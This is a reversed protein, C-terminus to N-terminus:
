RGHDKLTRELTEFGRVVEEIVAEEVVGEQWAVTITLGKGKVSACNVSFAPGVPQAGQSFTVARVDWVSGPTYGFDIPGLNSVEFTAERAKGFKSRYFNIPDSVYSLLGVLNDRPCKELEAQQQTQVHRAVSWIDEAHQALYNPTKERFAQLIKGPFNTTFASTQNCMEDKSTETARGRLTYPTISRFANASPLADSLSCVVSSTLLSTLSTSKKKTLVLLTAVTEPPLAM